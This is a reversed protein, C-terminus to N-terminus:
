SKTEGRRPSARNSPIGVEYLRTEAGLGYMLMNKHNAGEKSIADSQTHEQPVDIAWMMLAM